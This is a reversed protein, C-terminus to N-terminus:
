TRPTSFGGFPIYVYATLLLGGYSVMANLAFMKLTLSREHSSEHVHNEWATLHSATMRWLSIIQPVVGAFLVTPLLSQIFHLKSQLLREVSSM